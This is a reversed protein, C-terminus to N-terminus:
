NDAQQGEPGEQKSLITLYMVLEEASGDGSPMIPRSAETNSSFGPSHVQHYTLQKRSCVAMYFQSNGEAHCYTIIFVAILFFFLFFLLIFCPSFM